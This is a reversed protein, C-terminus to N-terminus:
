PTIGSSAAVTKLKATETRMLELLKEPSGGVTVMGMGAFQTKLADDALGNKVAAALRSRVDAPLRAPGLLAIWAAMDYGPLGAEAITPVNPLRADRVTSTTGLVRVKGADVQPKADGSFIVQCVNSVVDLLGPGSGRYPVHTMEIGAMSKFMEGAFHLGSGPGSSAYSLKGPNQKAYAIFESVNKAPVSPNVVMLLGFSALQAIPTFDKVPDYALSKETVAMYTLSGNNTLLLTYGDPAMRALAETGIRGGGGGKNDVIVPQKLDDSLAKAMARAAQDTFGGAAFPVILRIPKSPYTDALAAAAGSCLAVGVLVRRLVAEYTKLM